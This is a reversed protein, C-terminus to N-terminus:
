AQFIVERRRLAFDTLDQLPKWRAILRKLRDEKFQGELSKQLISIMADYIAAKAFHPFMPDDSNAVRSNSLTIRKVAGLRLLVILDLGGAVGLISPADGNPLYAPSSFVREAEELYTQFGRKTGFAKVKAADLEITTTHSQVCETEAVNYSDVDTAIDLYYYPNGKDKKAAKAMDIFVYRVQEPTAPKPLCKTVTHKGDKSLGLVNARVDSAVMLIPESGNINGEEIDGRVLKKAHNIKAKAIETATANPFMSEDFSNNEIGGDEKIVNVTPGFLYKIFALRRASKGAYIVTSFSIPSEAPPLVAAASDATRAPLAKNDPRRRSRVEPGM